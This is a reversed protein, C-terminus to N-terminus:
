VIPKVDPESVKPRSRHFSRRLEKMTKVLPRKQWTRFEALVSENNIIRCRKKGRWQGRPYQYFWCHDGLNLECSYCKRVPKRSHQM